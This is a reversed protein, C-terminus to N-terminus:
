VNCCACIIIMFYIKVKKKILNCNITIDYRFPTDAYDYYTFWTYLVNVTAM